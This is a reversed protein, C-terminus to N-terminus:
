LGHPFHVSNFAGGDKALGHMQQDRVANGACVRLVLQTFHVNFMGFNVFDARRQFVYEDRQGGFMRRFVVSFRCSSAEDDRARDRAVSRTRSGEGDERNLIVGQSFAHASMLWEAAEAGDKELFEDADPAIRHREEEHKKRRQHFHDREAVREVVVDFVHRHHNEILIARDLAPLQDITEHVCFRKTDNAFHM